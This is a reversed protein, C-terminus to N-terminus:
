YILRSQFVTQAEVGSEKREKQKIDPHLGEHKPYVEDIEDIHHYVIGSLIEM